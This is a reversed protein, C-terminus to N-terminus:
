ARWQSALAKVLRGKSVKSVRRVPRALSEAAEMPLTYITLMSTTRTFIAAYPRLGAKLQQRAVM